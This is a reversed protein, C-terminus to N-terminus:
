FPIPKGALLDARTYPTPYAVPEPKPAPPPPLYTALFLALTM